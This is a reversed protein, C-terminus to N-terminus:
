MMHYMWSALYSWTRSATLSMSSRPLKWVSRTRFPRRPQHHRRHDYTQDNQPNLHRIVQYFLQPKQLDKTGNFLFMYPFSTNPSIPSIVRFHFLQSINNSERLTNNPNTKETLKQRGKLQDRPVGGGRHRCCSCVEQPVENPAWGHRLNGNLQPVQTSPFDAGLYEGLVDFRSTEWHIQSTMLLGFAMEDILSVRFM